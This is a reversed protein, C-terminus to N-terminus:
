YAVGVIGLLVFALVIIVLKWVRRIAVFSLKDFHKQAPPKPTYLALFENPRM